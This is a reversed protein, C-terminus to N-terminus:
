IQAVEDPRGWDTPPLDEELWEAQQHTFSFPDYYHFTLAIHHDPVPMRLMEDINNMMGGGVIIWRDPHNARIIPIVRDYLAIARQTTMADRPENLLEFALAGEHHAFHESLETWMAIFMSEYADPDHMLRDFHHLDLIVTLGQAQAAKIIHDVRALLYPEIQGQWGADFRVPLRLTRFGSQAIWNIDQQTIREGWAGEYPADLDNGFNICPTKPFGDTTANLATVSLGLALASLMLPRSLPLFRRVGLINAHEKM